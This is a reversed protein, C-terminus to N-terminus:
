FNLMDDDDAKSQPASQKPKGKPENEALVKVNFASVGYFVKDDKKNSEYKGQVLVLDGKQPMKYLEGWYTVNHWTTKEQWEGAKDKWNESTAIAFRVYKKGGATDKSEADKGAHGILTVSNLSPM